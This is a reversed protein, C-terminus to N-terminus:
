KPLKRKGTLSEVDLCYVATRDMAKTSFGADQGPHCQDMIAQLADLKQSEDLMRLRGKGVVSAYAMTCYGKEPFYQLVHDADMEFAARPDRAMLELKRGQLASHFVLRVQSGEVQLGFNLPIVYPFGDEDNLALRCVNCSRMVDLLQDFDTIERDSRRM